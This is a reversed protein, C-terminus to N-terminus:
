IYPNNIFFHNYPIFSLFIKTMEVRVEVFYGATIFVQFRKNFPIIIERDPSFRQRQLCYKKVHMLIKEIFLFIKRKKM